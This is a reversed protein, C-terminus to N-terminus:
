HRASPSAAREGSTEGLAIRLQNQVDTVGSVREALEEALRKEDRSQVTGTLTVEGGQVRVEFRSADVRPDETLAECVDERIRDDSRRYGRPGRGRHPGRLQEPGFTAGYGSRADSSGGYVERYRPDEVRWDDETRWDSRGRPEGYGQRSYSETEYARSRDAYEGGPSVRQGGRFRGEDGYYDRERSARSGGQQRSGGGEPWGGREWERGEGPHVRERRPFDAM